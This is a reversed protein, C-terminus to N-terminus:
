SHPHSLRLQKNHDTFQLVTATVESGVDPFPEQKGFQSIDILGLFPEGFDVFAGFPMLYVVKGVVVDGIQMRDKLELWSKETPQRVM